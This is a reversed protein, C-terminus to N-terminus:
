DITKDCRVFELPVFTLFTFFPLIAEQAHFSSASRYLLVYWLLRM